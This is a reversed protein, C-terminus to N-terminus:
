FPPAGDPETPGERHGNPVVPGPPRAPEQRSPREGRDIRRIQDEEWASIRKKEVRRRSDVIDQAIEPIDATWGALRNRTEGLVTETMLSDTAGTVTRKNAALGLRMEEDGALMKEYANEPGLNLLVKVLVPLCEIVTFLLFLLWRAATLASSGATAADLAQLRILLGTDDRNKTTFADTQQQQENRDVQLKREAAPLEERAQSRSRAQQVKGSGILRKELTTIQANDQAVLAKDNQYSQQSAQALRGNGPPCKGGGAPPVGYLQCQWENYDANEKKQAQNRQAILSQVTKNGALNAGPGGLSITANLTAVRNEDATIQSSLPSKPLQRYYAAASRNQIATIQHEIEPRFIQLVFPTSIVIGFLAALFLRPLALLLYNRRKEQRQLSVVLWRDLSLIALGWAFAFPLAAWLPAKLATVLAFTLSVAAISATILIAAGIGTYKPRESPCDALIEQRAGSLWILPQRM